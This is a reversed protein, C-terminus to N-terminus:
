FRSNSCCVHHRLSEYVFFDYDRKLCLIDYEAAHFVKEIEPNAMIPALPKLDPVALPDVLWDQDSTSIQLLCVRERYAFLSNSETDIAIRKENALIAVLDQLEEPTTVIKPTPLESM